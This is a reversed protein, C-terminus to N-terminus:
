ANARTLHARPRAEAFFRRLDTEKFIRRQVITQLLRDRVAADSERRAPARTSTGATSAGATDRATSPVYGRQTSQGHAALRHPSSGRVGSPSRAGGGGGGGAKLHGIGRRHLDTSPPARPPPQRCRREIEQQARRALPM